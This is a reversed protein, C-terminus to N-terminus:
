HPMLIPSLRLLVDNRDDTIYVRGSPSVNLDVPAGMPQKAKVGWNSIVDQLSGTPMGAVNSKFGVVRHGADRYGHLAMLWMGRLSAISGDDPYRVMGLPASHAPLLAYPKLKDRCTKVRANYEPSVRNNDYCYPWGYDADQKIWNLEDHPLQAEKLKKDNQAINDRGNETAFLAGTKSLAMGMANRIGRAWVVQRADDSPSIVKWITGTAREGLTESCPSSVVASSAASRECHDTMAGMSIYLDGQADFLIQKLPHLGDAPLKSVVEEFGSKAGVKEAILKASPNVRFVRNTEAVYIWGGQAAIGHPRDLGELITKRVFGKDNKVLRSLRGRHHEWSGMETIWIDDDNLSLVGRPMNLDTAVVGLCTNPPTRVDVRPLGDCSGVVPYPNKAWGIGILGISLFVACTLKKLNNM